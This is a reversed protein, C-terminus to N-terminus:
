NLPWYVICQLLTSCLLGFVCVCVAMAVKRNSSAINVQSCVCCKPLWVNLSWTCRNVYSLSVEICLIPVGQGGRAWKTQLVFLFSGMSAGVWNYLWCSVIYSSIHASVLLCWHNSFDKKSLLWCESVLLLAQCSLSTGVCRLTHRWSTRTCAYGCSQVHSAYHIYIYKTLCSRYWPVMCQPWM